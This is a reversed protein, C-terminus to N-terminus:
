SGNSGEEVVLPQVEAEVPLAKRYLQELQAMVSSGELQKGAREMTRTGYEILFIGAKLAIEPHAEQKAVRTIAALGSEIQAEGSRWNPLRLSLVTEGEIVEAYLATLEQELKRKRQEPKGKKHFVGRQLPARM